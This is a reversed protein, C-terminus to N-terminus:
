GAATPRMVARGVSVLPDRSGRVRRRLWLLGRAVPLRPRGRRAPQASRCVPGLLSVLLVLAYQGISPSVRHMRTGIIVVVLSIIMNAVAQMALRSAMCAWAPAPTVRLRQFVGKERCRRVDVRDLLVRGAQPKVLGRHCQAHEDEGRRKPRAARLDGAGSGSASRSSRSRPVTPSRCGNSRSSRTAHWGQRRRLRLATLGAPPRGEDGLLGDRQPRLLLAGDEHEEAIVYTQAHEGRVV